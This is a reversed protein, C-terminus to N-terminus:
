SRVHKLTDIADRYNIAGFIFSGAVLCTAGANICSLATKDTIGGDVSLLCDRNNARDLMARIAAIKGVASPLFSQGGFGPNVSMVLIVDLEGIVYTLASEHTSPNLAVGAKAGFAKIQKICRELHIVSEAHVTLLDAGAEIYQDISLEPKEIMLHVDLPKKSIRKIARILPPGLTLNPVFHGDMVDVHIFDAHADVASIDRGLNLFDAALISPSIKIM